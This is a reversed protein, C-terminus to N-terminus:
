TGARYISVPCCKRRMSQWPILSPQTKHDSTIQDVWLVRSAFVGIVTWQDVKQMSLSSIHPFIYVALVFDTVINLIIVPYFLREKTPCNSSVMHWPEPLNCQFALAFVSFLCWVAVMASLYFYSARPLWAWLIKGFLAIVSAKSFTTSVALGVLHSAYM